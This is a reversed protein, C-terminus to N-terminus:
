RHHRSFFDLCSVKRAQEEEKRDAKFESARKTCIEFHRERITLAKQYARLAPHYTGQKTSQHYAIQQYLLALARPEIEKQEECVTSLAWAHPILQNVTEIQLSDTVVLQIRFCNIWHMWDRGIQQAGKTQQHWTRAGEQVLRHIFVSTDTSGQQLLGYQLLATISTQVLEETYRGNGKGVLGAKLLALPINEPAFYACATLVPALAPYRDHLHGLTILVTILVTSAATPDSANEPSTSTRLKAVEKPYGVISCAKSQIYAVAHALALPSYALADLLVKRESLKSEPLQERVYQEGEEASFGTIVHPRKDWNSERSTILIHYRGGTFAPLLSELTSPDKANDFVLLVRQNKLRHHVAQLSEQPSLGTLAFWAQALLQFQSFLDREAYLWVVADYTLRLNGCLAGQAALEVYRAAMQTKGVGGTGVLVQRVIGGPHRHLDIALKALLNKCGTFNTVVPPAQFTRWPVLNEKESDLYALIKGATPRKLPDDGWCARMLSAINKPCGAPIQERYQDKAIKRELLGNTINAYPEQRSVIEWLLLGLNYIDAAATYMERKNRLLEPALLHIADHGDRKGRSALGFDGLKARLGGEGPSLLVNARKLDRHFIGSAHLFALGTVIDKIIQLRISWDKDWGDGSNELLDHLSGQSMHEMVMYSARPTGGIVYGYLQVTHPSRAEAMIQSELALQNLEEETLANELKKIAVKSGQYYGLCVQGFHGAGLSKTNPPSFTLATYPINFSVTVQSENGKKEEKSESGSDHSSLSSGTNSAESTGSM